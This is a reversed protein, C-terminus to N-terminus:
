WLYLVAKSLLINRDLNQSLIRFVVRADRGESGAREEGREPNLDHHFNTPPKLKSGSLQMCSSSILHVQPLFRLGALSERGQNRGRNKWPAKICSYIHSQFHSLMPPSRSEAASVCCDSFSHFDALLPTQAVRLRTSRNPTRFRQTELGFQFSFIKGFQARDGYLKATERNSPSILLINIKVFSM